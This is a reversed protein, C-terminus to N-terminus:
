PSATAGKTLSTTSLYEHGAQEDFTPLAFVTYPRRWMDDPSRIDNVYAARVLLPISGAPWGSQRQYADNVFGFGEPLFYDAVDRPLTLYHAAIPNYTTQTQCGPQAVVLRVVSLLAALIAVRELRPFQRM